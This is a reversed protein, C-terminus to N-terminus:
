SILSGHPGINLYRIPNEGRRIRAINLQVFKDVELWHTLALTQAEKPTTVLEPKTALRLDICVADIGRTRIYGYPALLKHRM